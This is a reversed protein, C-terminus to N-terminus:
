VRWSATRHFPSGAASLLAAVCAAAAPEVVLKCREMIVVMAELIENDPLRVVEDVFQQVHALTYEGAFPAALGDAVTDRKELTM